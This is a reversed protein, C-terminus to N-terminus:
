DDGSMLEQEKYVLHHALMFVEETYTVRGYASDSTLPVVGSSCVAQAYARLAERLDKGQLPKEKTKSGLYDKAEQELTM